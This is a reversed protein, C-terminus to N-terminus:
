TSVRAYPLASAPLSRIVATWRPLIHIVLKSTGNLRELLSKVIRAQLELSVAYRTFAEYGSSSHSQKMAQFIKEMHVSLSKGVDTNSTLILLAKLLKRRM